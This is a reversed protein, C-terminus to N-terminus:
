HPAEVNGSDNIKSTSTRFNQQLVSLRHRNDLTETTQELQCLNQKTSFYLTTTPPKKSCVKRPQLSGFRVRLKARMASPGSSARACKLTLFNLEDFREIGTRSAFTSTPHLPFQPKRFKLLICDLAWNEDFWRRCNFNYWWRWSSSSSLKLRLAIGGDDTSANLTFVMISHVMCETRDSRFAKIIM